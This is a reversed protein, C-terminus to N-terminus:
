FKWQLFINGSPDITAPADRPATYAGAVQGGIQLKEKTGPITYMIQAGLGPQITPLLSFSKSGTQQGRQVGGLLQAIPEIQLSGKLFAFVWAAQFGTYGSQLQWHRTSGPVNPDEFTTAQATWSFEPGSENEKHLEWTIQVAAQVGPADPQLWKGASPDYHGSRVASVSLYYSVRSTSPEPTQQPGVRATIASEVASPDITRGEAAGEAVVADVVEARTMFRQISAHRFLFKSGPAVSSGFPDVAPSLDFFTILGQIWAGPDVQTRGSHPLRPDDYTYGDITKMRPRILTTRVPGPKARISSGNSDVAGLPDDSFQRDASDAPQRQVLTVDPAASQQMVHALEHALLKRGHPTDPAFRGRAFGIHHRATFAAAGVARAAVDAAADTHVRVRSFDHDFREEFFSRLDAGLPVGPQRLADTVIGPAHLAAPATASSVQPQTGEARGHDSRYGARQGLAASASPIFDEAQMVQGAIRDAAREHHDGTPGVELAPAPTYPLSRTSLWPQLGQAHGPPFLPVSSFDRWANRPSAASQSTSSEPEQGVIREATQDPRRRGSILAAKDPMQAIKLSSM